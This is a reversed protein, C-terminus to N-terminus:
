NRRKIKVITNVMDRIEDATVGKEIAESVANVYDGPILSSNTAYLSRENSDGLIYEMSVSWLKSLRRVVESNPLHTGRIYKSMMGPSIGCIEEIRQYTPGKEKQLQQIRECMITNVIKRKM